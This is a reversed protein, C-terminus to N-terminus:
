PKAAPPLPLVFLNYASYYEGSVGPVRGVNQWGWREYVAQAAHDPGTALTAREETRGKLLEDHLTRGLGKDQWARRVEIESLVLTRKGNEASFGEQPEPELGDWWHTDPQLTYGFAFGVLSGGVRAAVLDFGPRKLQKAARNRFASTKEETPEAGYADAYADCLDDMLAAAQDGSHHSFTLDAPLATM